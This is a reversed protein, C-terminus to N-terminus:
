STVLESNISKNKRARGSRKSTQPTLVPVTGILRVRSLIEENEEPMFSPDFPKPLNMFGSCIWLAEMHAAHFDELRIARRDEMIANREVQQLLKALLGILGNTACYFRFAMSDSDLVPLDFHEALTAHFSALISQFEDRQDLNKWDFRPLTVPALFRGALQENQDIVVKCSPLGAVVLTSCTEGILNKLWNAVREMIQRKGSDYFHQFEDIMVMRTGTKKMLIRLQRTKETETGRWSFPDELAELLVSTLSKVTPTPPVMARLIPVKLGDEDRYPPHQSYFQNLVSTKGTRSEGIIALGEAEAKNASFRFSTDLQRVACSFAKHPVVLRKSIPMDSDITM